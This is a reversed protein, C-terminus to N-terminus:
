AATSCASEEHTLAGVDEQRRDKRREARCDRAVERVHVVRVDRDRTRRAPALGHLGGGVGLDESDRDPEKPEDGIERDQGRQGRRALRAAPKHEADRERAEDEAGVEHTCANRMSDKQAHHRELSTITVRM